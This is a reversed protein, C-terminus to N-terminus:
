RYDRIIIFQPFKVLSIISLEHSKHINATLMDLLTTINNTLLMSRILIFIRILLDHVFRKHPHLKKSSLERYTIKM